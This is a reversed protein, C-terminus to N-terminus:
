SRAARSKVVRAKTHHRIGLDDGIVGGELEGLQQRGVLRLVLRLGLKAKQNGAEPESLFSPDIAAIPM